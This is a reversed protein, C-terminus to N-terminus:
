ADIKGACNVVNDKAAVGTARYEKIVAVTIAEVQDKLLCHLPESVAYMTETEHCVVDMENHLYAVDRKGTDHLIKGQTIRFPYVKGLSKGPM